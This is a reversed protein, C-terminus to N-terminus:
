TLDERSALQPSREIITVQSGVRGYAQAMELGVYGGSFVILHTPLEDLELAEVNTLPHAAALDPVPPITAHTGINLFINKATLLSTCCENLHVELTKPAAFRGEGMILGPGSAKFNDLHMAILGEVMEGKRQRVRVM